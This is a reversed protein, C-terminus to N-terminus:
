PLTAVRFREAVDLLNKSWDSALPDALVVECGIANAITQASKSSIQPQVFIAKVGEKRGHDELGQLERAKPEKGEIEIALQTLGYAKAFYGWAPHYVMFRAGEGIGSFVDRLHLDLDVLEGIFAKYNAKYIEKHGPDVRTLAYYINRSQLMVLPPSVWIHPDEVGEHHTDADHHHHAEIPIKEIGDETHVITMHPNVDVFKQLWVKEFPMGITFYIKAKTLGVMQQPKPEYTHLNSGPLVMESVDVLDGGIKEVFYKQPVISVIVKLPDSAWAPYASIGLLTTINVIVALVARRRNAKSKVLELVEPSQEDASSASKRLNFQIWM